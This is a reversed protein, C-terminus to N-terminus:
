RRSKTKTPKKSNAKKPTPKRDSELMRLREALIENVHKAMMTDVKENILDTAKQETIREITKEMDEQTLRTKKQEALVARDTDNITLDPIALSFNEFRTQIDPNYYTGRLDRKHGMLKETVNANIANNNNLTTEFWKRFGGFIAKQFRGNAKDMSSRIKSKEVIGVMMHRLAKLSLPEVNHWAITERYKNRFMPSTPTIKEGHFERHRLYARYEATAEPTLFATYEEPDRPYLTVYMCNNGIEKLDGVKLGIVAEPRAGTSVFFMVLARNRPSHAATLLQRLDDVTYPQEGSEKVKRPFMKKIKKFNIIIDNQILFLEIPSFRQQFANPSIAGLEHKRKLHIAYDIIIDEITKPDLQIIDDFDKLKAFELFKKMYFRYTKKTHPSRISEEFITYSRL